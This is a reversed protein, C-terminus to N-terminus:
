LIKQKIQTLIYLNLIEIRFIVLLLVHLILNNQVNLNNLTKISYIIPRRLLRYLFNLILVFFLLDNHSSHCNESLQKSKKAIM